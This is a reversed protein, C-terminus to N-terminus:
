CGLCGSLELKLYRFSKDVWVDKFTKPSSLNCFAPGHGWIANFPYEKIKLVQIIIIIKDVKKSSIINTADNLSFRGRPNLQSIANFNYEIIKLILFLVLKAWKKLSIVLINMAYNLFSRGWPNLQCITHYNYEM